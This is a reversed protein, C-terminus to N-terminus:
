LGCEVGCVVCGVGSVEVMPTHPTSERESEKAYMRDASKRGAFGLARESGDTRDQPFIDGFISLVKWFQSRVSGPLAKRPDTCPTPHLTPHLAYMRDASKRGAFGLARELGLRKVKEQRYAVQWVTYVYKYLYISIYVCICIYICIYIYIYIDIYIYIYTYEYM